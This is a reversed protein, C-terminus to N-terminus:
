SATKEFSRWDPIRGILRSVAESEGTYHEILLNRADDEMRPAEAGALLHRFTPRVKPPVLSRAARRLALSGMARRALPGRPVAARNAHELEQPFGGRSVGLFAAIGALVASSDAAMEEFLVVHVSRGFTDFAYALGEAYHGYAVYRSPWPTAGPADIQQRIADLFPRTELGERVDNLYHSYAREVPDRLVVILRAGPMAAHIRQLADPHLVYEASADCRYRATRGPAYLGIYAEEGRVVRFFEAKADDIDLGLFFRPCDVYPVFIDPHGGLAYTLSRTGAKPVGALFLNPWADAVQVTSSAATV